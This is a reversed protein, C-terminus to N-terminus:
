SKKADKAAQERRAARERMMKNVASQQVADFDMSPPVAARKVPKDSKKKSM